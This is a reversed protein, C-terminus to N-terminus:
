RAPSYGISLSVRNEEYDRAGLALAGFADGSGEYHVVSLGLSFGRAFGWSLGAGVSWEDFEVGSEGFDESNWSGSLSGSLTQRLQRTVGLTAALRERNLADDREHDEERWDVAARLGTRGADLSWALTLYDSQYPDRSVVADDRGSGIPSTSFNRRFADATDVLNTGASLSLTSRATLRREVQVSLLPGGSSEGQDHLSTYGAQLDLSTRGGELGFGLFASNTDYNSNLTENDYEVRTASGNLSVFSAPSLRRVLSLSGTLRQNDTSSEEYSADMWRGSLVVSTRQGLRLTLDPGTSLVNTNQRNGATDVARPDILTQGYTEQLFWSFREPVFAYVLTGDLRGTLEDDYTNDLYTRYQLDAGADAQLRGEPRSWAFQLGADATTESQENTSVRGVNDTYTAGVSVGWDFQGQAADAAGAVLALCATLLMRSATRM